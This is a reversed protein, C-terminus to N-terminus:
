GGNEREEDDGHDAAGSPDRANGKQDRDLSTGARDPSAAGEHQSGSQPSTGPVDPVASDSAAGPSGGSDPPPPGTQQRAGAAVSDGDGPQAATREPSDSATPPPSASPATLGAGDPSAANGNSSTAAVSSGSPAAATGAPGGRGLAAIKIAGTAAAGAAGMALAGSSAAGLSATMPVVVKLLAPLILVSLILLMFGSIVEVATRHGATLTFAAKYLLAATPKYLLWAALWAVHKRWWTEGWDSMSAAAALPLTGTLVILLGVRLIMLMLQILSSFIILLAIILLM